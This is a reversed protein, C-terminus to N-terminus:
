RKHAPCLTEFSSPISELVDPAVMSRRKADFAQKCAMRVLTCASMCAWPVNRQRQRMAWALVTGLSGALFDGLGGPRRPAGVEACELPVDMGFQCIRDVAGKQLVCPGKLANCVGVIDGDETGLLAQSLRKYEMMNPTVVCEAYGVLLDPRQTVLWLADADLVVPLKRAKAEEVVRAAAALVAPHRGLGPGIVLSHLRPMVEVVKHVFEDAELQADSGPASIKAFSYVASVMLEPSYSKIPLTAEHATLVHVLEAGVRLAAMGAYYPAGAYDISGGLVGIRGAQLM